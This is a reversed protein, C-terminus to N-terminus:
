YNGVIPSGHQVICDKETIILALPCGKAKDVGSRVVSGETSSIPFPTCAANFGVSGKVVRM